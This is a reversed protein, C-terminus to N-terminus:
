ADVVRVESSQIRTARQEAFEERTFTAEGSCHARRTHVDSRWIVPRSAAHVEQVRRLNGRQPLFKISKGGAADSQDDM